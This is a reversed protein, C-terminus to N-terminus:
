AANGMFAAREPLRKYGDTCVVGRRKLEAQYDTVNQRATTIYVNWAAYPGFDQIRAMVYGDAHRGRDEYRGSAAWIAHWEPFTLRWEIGRHKANIRQRLFTQAVSGKAHKRKGDNLALLTPFDCGLDALTVRNLRAMRAAEIRAAKDAGRKAVGGEEKKMGATTVIQRVRERTIGYVTGIQQLTHGESYLRCMRAVRAGDKAPGRKM